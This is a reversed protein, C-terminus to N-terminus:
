FALCAIGPHVYGSLSVWPEIPFCVLYFLLLLFLLMSSILLCPLLSFFASPFMPDYVPAFACPIGMSCSALLWAYPMLYMLSYPSIM